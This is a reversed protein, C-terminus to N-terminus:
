AAVSRGVPTTIDAINVDAVSKLGQRLLETGTTLNGSGKKIFVLAWPTVATDIYRDAQQLDASDAEKSGSWSITGVRIKRDGIVITAAALEYAIVTYQGPTTIAAPFSGCYVGSATGQETFAFVYNAINADTFSEFNNGSGTWVQGAANLVIGKCTKGTTWEFKIENSM